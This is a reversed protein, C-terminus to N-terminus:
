VEKEQTQDIDSIIPMVNGDLCGYSYQAKIKIFHLTFKHSM